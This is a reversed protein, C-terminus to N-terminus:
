FPEFGQSSWWQSKLENYEKSFLELHVNEWLILKEYLKRAHENKTNDHAKKYFAVSDKEMQMGISFVTVGLAPDKDKVNDWTYIGPSPVEIEDITALSLDDSPNDKINNFLIRLWEVHKLEEEALNMLMNAVSSNQANKSAMKYFEYGEIENLIAQQIVQIEKKNM